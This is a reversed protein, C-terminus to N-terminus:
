PTVGLLKPPNVSSDILITFTKQVAGSGPNWSIALDASSSQLSSNNQEYQYDTVTYTGGAISGTLYSSNASYCNQNRWRSYDKQILCDGSLQLAGAVAQASSALGDEQARRKLLISNSMQRQLAVGQVSLSGLLLVLTMLVALPLMFGFEGSIDMRVGRRGMGCAPRGDLRRRSLRQAPLQSGAVLRLRSRAM